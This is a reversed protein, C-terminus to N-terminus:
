LELHDWSVDVVWYFQDGFLHFFSDYWQEMLPALEDVIGFAWLHKEIRRKNTDSLINWAFKMEEFVTSKGLSVLRKWQRM